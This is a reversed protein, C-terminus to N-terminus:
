IRKRVNKIDIFKVADASIGAQREAQTYSM